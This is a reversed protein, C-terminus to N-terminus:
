EVHKLKAFSFKFAMNHIVSNVSPEIDNKNRQGPKLPKIKSQQGRM